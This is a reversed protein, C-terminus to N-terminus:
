PVVYLAAKCLYMYGSCLDISPHRCSTRLPCLRAAIRFVLDLVAPQLDGGRGLNTDASGWGWYQFAMPARPELRRYGPPAHSGQSGMVGRSKPVARIWGVLVLVLVAYSTMYIILM